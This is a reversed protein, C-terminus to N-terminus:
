AMGGAPRLRRQPGPGRLVGTRAAHVEARGGGPETGQRRDHRFAGAHRGWGGLYRYQNPNAPNTEYVYLDENDQGFVTLGWAGHDNHGISVGPIEPEGGGIVNWGPANLHVYYRLSPAQQSRHPDNVMIPYGSLTRSGHVTWNNSGIADRTSTLDFESPMARALRQFSAADNRAEAVVIDEPQFQVPRRYATYLELIDASLLAGDIAPDLELIPDVQRFWELDRVAEAGIAAVARGYNLERAVNSLLGQHRSVVVEPTWRAPTIGLLKFELPLEDPNAAARDVYANVGEVFANIIAEGRPHYHNLERTMDGRFMQLRTGIDRNLERPGLIEAVTGTAQRRWIEFQFLRDTAASYGQAFFLDHENQAYIHAIGWRDRIIEVSENLGAVRLTTEQARVSSGATALILGLFVVSWAMRAPKM